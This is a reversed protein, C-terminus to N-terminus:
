AEGKARMEELREITIRERADDSLELLNFRLVRTDPQKWESETWSAFELRHVGAHKACWVALALGQTALDRAIRRPMLPVPKVKPVEPVSAESVSGASRAAPTSFLDCRAHRAGSSLRRLEAVM